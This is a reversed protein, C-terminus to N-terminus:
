AKTDDSGGSTLLRALVFGVAAAAGIAVVPSKRVFERTNETIEQFDTERLSTAASSIADATKRAYKGYNEGLRDDVSGAADQLLKSLGELADSAKDRGVNAYESAKETAKDKLKLAEEAIRDKAASVKESTAKAASEARDGVSASSTGTEPPSTTQNM